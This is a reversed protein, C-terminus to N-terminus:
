GLLEGREGGHCSLCQRTNRVAGLVRRVEATDRVFLDEGRRLAKLGLAEFPDLPRTPAGRLEEMRPLHASVYAVPEDHLVLGGLDLTLLAWREAPQPAQSFRHPQFGAVHRRDKFFGFGNPNVFDAVGFRHMSWLEEALGTGRQVPRLKQLTD